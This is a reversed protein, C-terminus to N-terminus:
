ASGSAAASKGGPKGGVSVGVNPLFFILLGIYV